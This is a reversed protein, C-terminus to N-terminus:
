KCIVEGENKIERIDKWKMLFIVKKKNSLLNKLFCVISFTIFHLYCYKFHDLFPTLENRGIM